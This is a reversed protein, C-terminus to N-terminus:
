SNNKLTNDTATNKVLYKRSFIYFACGAIVFSVIVGPIGYIALATNLPSRYSLLLYFLLKFLWEINKIAPVVIWILFSFLILYATSLGIVRNRNEIIFKKKLIKASILVGVWLPLVGEVMESTLFSFLKGRNIGTGINLGGFFLSFMFVTRILFVIGFGGILFHILATFWNPYIKKEM